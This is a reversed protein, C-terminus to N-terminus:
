SKYEILDAIVTATIIFWTRRPTSKFTPGQDRRRGWSTGVIWRERDRERDRKETKQFM